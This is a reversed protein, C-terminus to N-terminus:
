PLDKAIFPGIINTVATPLKQWVKIALEYKPNNPNLQPLDSGSPLCYHWYLQAPQAGWQRKFKYTSAEKSSRGFDFFSYGESIAFSLVEWYLLMNANYPNARRLTSAWPIELTDGHGLLFACSVPKKELYLICITSKLPQKLLNRFFSKAYVPTGLDRMNTSFVSYFDDLLATSGTKFTFSNRQGKKVQARLKTGLDKWLQESSNPLSLLMSVKDNRQPYSPRPITERIEVHKAGLIQAKENISEILKLEISENIALPGGYNFFPISTIYSGFLKSQTHTCPLVGAISNNEDLAVLYLCRHSFSQEIVDKFEYRHYICAHAQKDVFENWPKKWAPSNALQIKITRANPAAQKVQTFHQPLSTTAVKEATAPKKNSASLSKLEASIFQMQELLHQIDEGAKRSKGIQRSLAGKQAKLDKIKQKTM